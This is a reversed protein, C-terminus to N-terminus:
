PVPAAGLKDLTASSATTQLHNATGCSTNEGALSPGTMSRFRMMLAAVNSAAVGSASAVSLRIM